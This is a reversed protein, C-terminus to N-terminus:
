MEWKYGMKKELGSFPSFWWSQLLLGLSSHSLKGVGRAVEL